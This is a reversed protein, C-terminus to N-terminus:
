PKPVYVICNQDPFINTRLRMNEQTDQSLDVFLYGHSQSVADQYSEMFYKTKGPFLQKALTSAQLQDSPNKMLILYQGNVRSTRLGKYFLNQVIHLISINWHHSGRTFLKVLHQDSKLDQMLDDLILLKPIEPSNKLKSFDPIGEILKVGSKMLKQYMPQWEGYCWYIEQPPPDIMLNVNEVLKTAWVTKGSKTPGSILATFPHSFVM